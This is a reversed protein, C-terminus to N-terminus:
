VEELAVHHLVLGSNGPVPVRELDVERYTPAPCAPSAPHRTPSTSAYALDARPAPNQSARERTDNDASTALDQLLSCAGQRSKDGHKGALAICVRETTTTERSLGALCAQQQANGEKQWARVFVHTNLQAHSAEHPVGEGSHVSRRLPTCAITDKQVQVITYMRTQHRFAQGKSVLEEPAQLGEDPTSLLNLEHFCCHPSRLLPRAASGGEVRRNTKNKKKECVRGENRRGRPACTSLRYTSLFILVRRRETMFFSQYRSGESSSTLSSTLRMRVGVLGITKAWLLLAFRCVPIVCVVMCSRFHKLSRWTHTFFRSRALLRVGSFLRVM